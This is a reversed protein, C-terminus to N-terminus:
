RKGSATLIFGGIVVVFYLLHDAIFFYSYLPFPKYSLEVFRNFLFTFVFAPLFLVMGKLFLYSNKKREDTNLRHLTSMFLVFLPISFLPFLVM